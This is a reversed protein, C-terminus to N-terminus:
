AGVLCFNPRRVPNKFVYSRRGWRKLSRDREASLYAALGGVQRLLADWDEPLMVDVLSDLEAVSKIRARNFAALSSYLSCLTSALACASSSARRASSCLSAWPLKHM